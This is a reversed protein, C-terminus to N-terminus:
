IVTNSMLLPLVLNQSCLEYWDVGTDKVGKWGGRAIEQQLKGAALGGGAGMSSSNSSAANPQGVIVHSVKKRMMSISIQAGHAVLLQKLKHDSIQPLTSGNIYVTTGAFIKSKAGLGAKLDGADEMENTPMTQMSISGGNLEGALGYRSVQDDAKVKAGELGEEKELQKYRKKGIRDQEGDGAKRKSVGMFSRIDRVGLQARTAEADPVWTWAGTDSARQDSSIIGAGAGCDVSDPGCTGDFAQSTTVRPGRM